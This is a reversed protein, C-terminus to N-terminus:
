WGGGGGGGSAKAQTAAEAREIAENERQLAKIEYQIYDRAIKINSDADQDKERLQALRSEITRSSSCQILDNCEGILADVNRNIRSIDGGDGSLDRAQKELKDIKRNNERVAASAM